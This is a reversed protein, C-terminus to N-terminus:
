DLRSGAYAEFGASKLVRAAAYAGAELTDVNQCPFKSPNWMQFAGDYNKRFGLAQLAKGMKSNARIKKGEYGWINVWAFGCAYQDVGGLQNEFYDAAANKAEQVAQAVVDDLTVEVTYTTTM